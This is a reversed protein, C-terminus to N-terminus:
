ASVSEMGILESLERLDRAFVLLADSRDYVVVLGPEHLDNLTTVVSGPQLKVFKSTPAPEPHVALFPVLVRYRYLAPSSHAM